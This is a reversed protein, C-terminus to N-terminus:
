EDEAEEQENWIQSVYMGVDSGVLSSMAVLNFDKACDPSLFYAVAIKEFKEAPIIHDKGCEVPGFHEALIGPLVACNNIWAVAIKAKADRLSVNMKRM